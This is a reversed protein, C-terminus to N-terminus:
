FKPLFEPNYNWIESNKFNKGVNTKGHKWRYISRIHFKTIIIKSIRRDSNWLIKANLSFCLIYVVYIVKIYWIYNVQASLMEMTGIINRCKIRKLVGFVKLWLFSYFSWKVPKSHIPTRGSLFSLSSNFLILIKKWACKQNFLSQCAGISYLGFNRRRIRFRSHRALSFNRRNKEINWGVHLNLSIIWIFSSLM